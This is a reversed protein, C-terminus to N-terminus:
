EHHMADQNNKDNDVRKICALFNEFDKIEDFSLKARKYDDKTVAQKGNIQYQGEIGTEIIHTM